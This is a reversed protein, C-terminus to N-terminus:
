ICYAAIWSVVQDLLMPWKPGIL